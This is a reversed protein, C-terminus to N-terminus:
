GAKKQSTSVRTSDAIFKLITSRRFYIRGRPRFQVYELAPIGRLRWAELTKESVGLLWAAQAHTLMRDDAPIVGDVFPEAPVIQLRTKRPRPM